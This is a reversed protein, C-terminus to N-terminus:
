PINANQASVVEQVLNIAHSRQLSAVTWMATEVAGGRLIDIGDLVRTNIGAARTSSLTPSIRCPTGYSAVYPMSGILGKQNM